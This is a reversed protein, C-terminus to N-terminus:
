KEIRDVKTYLNKMSGYKCHAYYECLRGFAMCSLDNDMNSPYHGEKINHLVEAYQDFTDEYLQEPITDKITKIKIRPERVMIKKQCAIYAGDPIQKYECYTALQGSTLVADDKYYKNVDSTTKNDCVYIREPDDVFSAVFDIYGTIYNGDPDTITVQEQISFVEHIEPLVREKYAEIIMLGKRYLSYTAIRNFLLQDSEVLEQRAKMKMSCDELFAKLDIEEGELGWIRERDRETLLKLDIDGKFFSARIDHRLYLNSGNLEQPRLLKKLFVMVPDRKSEIEEEPTLDKKKSLLLVGFVDDLASGFFLSSALSNPRIKQNYHLDYKKPCFLYTDKASNSLRITM